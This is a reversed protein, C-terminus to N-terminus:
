EIIINDIGAEVLSATSVDAAEILLLITRNAFESINVTHESWTDLREDDHIRSDFVVTTFGRDDVISLRLYHENTTSSLHKFLYSFRLTGIAQPSLTFARSRATTTTSNTQRVGPESSERFEIVLALADELSDKTEDADKASGSGKGSITWLGSDTTNTANSNITWGQISVAKFTEVYRVQWTFSVTDIGGRGDDVTVTPTYSGVASLTGTIMGTSVNIALGDPLHTASYSLNDNNPDGANILVTINDGIVGQHNGPTVVIPSTNSMLISQQDLGRDWVTNSVLYKDNPKDNLRIQAHNGPSTENANSVNSFLIGLIFFVIHSVVIHASM